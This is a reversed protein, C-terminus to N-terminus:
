RFQCLYYIWADATRELEEAALERGSVLGFARVNFFDKELEAVQARPRIFYTRRGLDFLIYDSNRFTKANLHRNYLFRRALRRATQLALAPNPSLLRGWDFYDACANLNHSSFCFFGGPKGIRRVEKLIEVREEHTGYDLGNYSFLIFDFSQDQFLPMQRADCVEFKLPLPYGSFRSRCAAVLDPDYDTGVYERVWKAFHLTTRGGGVGLDLMRAAPLLPLMLRLITEEPPQLHSQTAYGAYFGPIGYFAGSLSKTKM